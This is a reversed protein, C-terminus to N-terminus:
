KSKKSKKKTEKVPGIWGNLYAKPYEHKLGCLWVVLEDLIKQGDPTDQVEIYLNHELTKM